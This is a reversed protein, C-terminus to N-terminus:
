YKCHADDSSLPIMKLPVLDDPKHDQTPQLYWEVELKTMDANYDLPCLAFVGAGRM